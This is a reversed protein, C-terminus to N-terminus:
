RQEAGDRGWYWEPRVDVGQPAGEVVTGNASVELDIRADGLAVGEV